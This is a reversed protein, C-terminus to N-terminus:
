RGRRRKKVVELMATSRSAAGTAATGAGACDAFASAAFGVDAPGFGAAFFDATDELCAAFCAFAFGALIGSGLGRGVTASAAAGVTTALAPGDLDM